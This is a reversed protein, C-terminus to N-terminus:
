MSIVSPLKRFGEKHSWSKIVNDKIYWFRGDFLTIKRPLETQSKKGLTFINKGDFLHLQGYVDYMWLAGDERLFLQQATIYQGDAYIPM